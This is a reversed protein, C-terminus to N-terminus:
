VKGGNVTEDYIIGSEYKVYFTKAISNQPVFHGDHFEQTWVNVRFKDAHIHRSDIKLFHPVHGVFELLDADPITNTIPTVVEPEITQKRLTKTSM